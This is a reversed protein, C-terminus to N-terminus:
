NISIKNINESKFIECLSNIKNIIMNVCTNELEYPDVLAMTKRITSISPIGYKLDLFKGFWKSHLVAFEYIETWENCNALLGVFTIMIINELPQYAIDARYDIIECRINNTLEELFVIPLEDVNVDKITETIEKGLQELL